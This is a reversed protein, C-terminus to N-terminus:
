PPAPQPPRFPPRPLECAGPRPEEAAAVRNAGGEGLWAEPSVARAREEPNRGFWTVTLLVEAAADASLSGERDSPEPRLAKRVVGQARRLEGPTTPAKMEAAVRGRRIVYLRDEGDFGPVPYVLNLNRVQGRFGSLHKWLRELVKLRDQLRGAYEYEQRDSALRVAGALDALPDRTRTELFAQAASLRRGYEAATCRGACPGPCTGTEARICHPTRSAAFLDIQDAFHIPTHAPCDRMGTALALEHVARAVWRTQSFPGYYRAGDSLVRTVAVLRPAPENTVKIFGHRRDRKHQVNFEPQWARILHMERLLAAFENPLYDWRVNAATGVLRAVKGADERFYSLLRTRVRVSKGVYLVRGNNDLWQYVGPRNQASEAVSARLRPQPSMSM